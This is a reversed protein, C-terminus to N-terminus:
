YRFQTFLRHLWSSDVYKEDMQVRSAHGDLYWQNISGQHRDGILSNLWWHPSGYTTGTANYFDSDFILPTESPRDYSTRFTRIYNPHDPAANQYMTIYTHGLHDMSYPRVHGGSPCKEIDLPTIPSGDRWWYRGNVGGFYYPRVALIGWVSHGELTVGASQPLREGGPSDDAYQLLAVGIQRFNSLCSIAQASQRASQLAPLLLAILVAIISIVVLLEILTFARPKM